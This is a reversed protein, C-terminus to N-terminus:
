FEELSESSSCGICSCCTGSVGGAADELDEDTLGDIDLDELVEKAVKKKVDNADSM